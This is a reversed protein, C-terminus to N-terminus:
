PRNDYRIRVADEHRLTHFMAYTAAAPKGIKHEFRERTQVFRPYGGISATNIVTQAGNFCVLDTSLTRRRPELTM